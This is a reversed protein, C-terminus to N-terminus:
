DELLYKILEKTETPDRVSFCPIGTRLAASDNGGEFLADGIFIMDDFSLGLRDRIQKLGYEKDIGKHTVYISTYGAARVEMDPLHKQLTETIKLKLDTHEEKWKEKLDLPAQQGLASFTIESGRDEILEGYIQASQTYNLETFTQEFAKLIRDKQDSTLDHSYVFRWGAGGKDEIAPNDDVYRYFVTATAPFLFLNKLNDSDPLKALLQKEFMGFKGGGIVAVKKNKLLEGLLEAMESDMDTKSETLTGDLDFVILKKDKPIQNLDEVLNEM